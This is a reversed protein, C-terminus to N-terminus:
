RIHLNIDQFNINGFIMYSTKTINLSLLNARFWDNIIILEDNLQKEIDILSKGTLFLNTDDAFM